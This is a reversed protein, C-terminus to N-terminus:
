VEQMLTISSQLSDLYQELEMHLVETLVPDAEFFLNKHFSKILLFNSVPDHNLMTLSSLSYSQITGSRKRLSEVSKYNSDYTKKAFM